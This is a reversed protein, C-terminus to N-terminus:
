KKRIKYGCLNEGRVLWHTREVQCDPLAVAFMALEHGCVAPYSEAVQSIACNYETIIYTDDDDGTHLESMYGEAQRLAVLQQVREPLPGNGLTAYYHQAKRQWQHRLLAGVQEAGLDEAITDLLSVAFQDYQSPFRDRGKASLQYIYNPRGMGSQVVQHEVLGEAQLDKLHRRIAQPSVGLSAALKQATAQSSKLLFQLIDDKTSPQQVSTM